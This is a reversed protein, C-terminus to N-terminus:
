EVMDKHCLSILIIGNSTEAMVRLVGDEEMEFKPAFWSIAM